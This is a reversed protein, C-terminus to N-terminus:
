SIKNSLREFEIILSDVVYLNTGDTTVGNPNAFKASTGTADTSGQSSGAFTTVEPNEKEFDIETRKASLGVEYEQHGDSNNDNVGTVTVTQPTNWNDETFTLTAPGVTAEGTDSSSVAVTVEADDDLNHLAVDVTEPAPISVGSAVWNAGSMNKLTGTYSNSSSDTLATGSGDNMKYYAVLGTESGSLEKNMNAQIEAQTRAVNWIRVEDMKGNFYENNGFNDYGIAVSGSSATNVNWAVSASIIELEGDVYIISDAINPTGDNFFTVAVHHWEGDRLDTSGTKYGSNVEAKIVGPPGYGSNNNVRIGFKQGPYNAGWM